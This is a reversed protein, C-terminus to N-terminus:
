SESEVTGDFRQRMEEMGEPLPLREAARVEHSTYCNRGGAVGDAHNRWTAGNTCYEIWDDGADVPEGACAVMDPRMLHRDCGARQETTTLTKKHRACSWSGDREPTSHACTRCNVEAPAGYHCVQQMPCWKCQYWDPRESVRDLPEESFIVREARDLLEQARGHNRRLREGYIEDTNKNVAVYLARELDALEMGIQMQDAHQPKSKEVGHRKLDSFSRDNHTKAELLHPKQSEQLGTVVGDLSLAFHGGFAHFTFQRGTDHDIDYVTVGIARLDAIIRKEEWNGTDFLRLIRGEIDQHDAWRFLYWLYRDCYHGIQSGGLHPRHPSERADEYSRYISQVTPLDIYESIKAM